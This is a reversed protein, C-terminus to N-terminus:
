EELGGKAGRGREGASPDDIDASASTDDSRGYPGGDYAGRMTDGDYGAQGGYSSEGSYASSNGAGGYGQGSDFGRGALGRRPERQEERVADEPHQQQQDNADRGTEDNAM